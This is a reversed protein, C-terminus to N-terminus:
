ILSFLRFKPPHYTFGNLSQCFFFQGELTVVVLSYASIKHRPNLPLWGWAIFSIASSSKQKQQGLGGPLFVSFAICFRALLGFDYMFLLKISANILFFKCLYLRQTKTYLDLLWSDHLNPGIHLLLKLNILLVFDNCIYM